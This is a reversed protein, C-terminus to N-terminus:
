KYHVFFIVLKLYIKGLFLLESTKYSGLVAGNKMIKIDSMSNTM